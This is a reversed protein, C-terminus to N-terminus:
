IPDISLDIARFLLVQQPLHQQRRRPQHPAEQLQCGDEPAAPLLQGPHLAPARVGDGGGGHQVRHPEEQAHERCAALQHLGARDAEVEQPVALGAHLESGPPLSVMHLM